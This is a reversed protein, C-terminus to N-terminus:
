VGALADIFGPIDLEDICDDANFDAEYQYDEDFITVHSSILEILYPIDSFNLVGDNNIDGMIIDDDAFSVMPIAIMAM